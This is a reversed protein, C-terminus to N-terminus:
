SASDHASRGRTGLNSDPTRCEDRHREIVRVLFGQGRLAEVVQWATGIETSFPPVERVLGYSEVFRHPGDDTQFQGIQEGLVRRAIEVDADPGAELPGRRAHM